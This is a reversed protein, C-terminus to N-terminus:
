EEMRRFTYTLNRKKNTMVMEGNAFRQLQKHKRVIIQTNDSLDRNASRGKKYDPNDIELIFQLDGAITRKIYWKDAFANVNILECRSATCIFDFIKLGFENIMTGRWSENMQRVVWIGSLNMEGRSITIRYNNRELSDRLQPQWFQQDSKIIARPSCGVSLALVFSVFLLFRM